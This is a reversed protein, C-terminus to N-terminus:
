PSVQPKSFGYAHKRGSETQKRKLSLTTQSSTESPQEVSLLRPARDQLNHQNESWLLAPLPRDVADGASVHCLHM